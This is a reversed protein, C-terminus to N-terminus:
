PAQRGTDHALAHLLAALGGPARGHLRPSTFVRAAPEHCRQYGAAGLRHWLAHDEGTAIPGFGGVGRYADARVALNAGYVNPEGGAVVDRYRAAATSTGPFPAFLHAPGACAHWGLRARDLHRAAWLPTVETDADTNLLLVESASYGPLARLATRCGLDRVAGITTLRTNTTVHAGHRRALAATADTCRDAVVVVTRATGAPLQALARHVADLCRPLTTAEDRAPVVVAVAAIM